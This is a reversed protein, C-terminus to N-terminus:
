APSTVGTIEFRAGGDSGETVDVEWGHATVVQEVISLGFGTGGETTSYGATFVDGRDDEPIGPGDDEVYFGDDLAGVTVTADAAGHELANRILNEFLQTLRSEDARVTRDVRTRVTADTTEVNREATEVLATLDVSDLEGIRTGERALALVDDILEHMRGHADAVVDLHESDRDDRALEVRGDAVNLPNRLDHSIVGAFEELQENRRELRRERDKRDTIDRAVAVFLDEDEDEFRLRRIHIEVPFTSGDKRQYAGELRRRTGTETGEWLAHAAEPDLGRDLEWVKMETLEATDYGTEACLEPNPEIINGATDHFNILDPSEEFLVELKAEVQRLEGDHERTVVGFGLLTEDADYSASMTLEARFQSGDARRLREEAAASGDKRATELRRELTPRRDPDASLVSLHEGLADTADYGYLDTAAENWRTIYGEHDTTFVVDDEAGLTHFSRDFTATRESRATREETLDTATCIVTDEDARTLRHDTVLRDGRKTLRVTEGSWHGTEHVAPLIENRLRTAEEDPYITTWPVGILEDRDYGFLRAFASNVYSFTHDSEVLSLGESATDLAQHRLDVERKARFRDVANAVRNALIAYQETGTEKQLYDTVGATIAESAIEESGKGTFLVFPLDPDVDRVAELFEIGNRGPMDYDSVVCDFEEDTLRELGESASTATEVVFPEDDELVAASTEAFGPEDDVHLVRILEGTPRARLM